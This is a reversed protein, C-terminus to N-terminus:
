FGDLLEQASDYQCILACVYDARYQVSVTLLIHMREHIDYLSDVIIGYTFSMLVRFLVSGDLSNFWYQQVDTVSFIVTKQYAAGCLRTFVSMESATFEQSIINVLWLTCCGVFCGDECESGHVGPNEDWLVAMKVSVAM